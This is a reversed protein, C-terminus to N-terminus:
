KFCEPGSNNCILAKKDWACLKYKRNGDRDVYVWSKKCQNQTTAESCGLDSDKKTVYQTDREKNNCSEAAFADVSALLFLSGVVASALLTIKKSKIM